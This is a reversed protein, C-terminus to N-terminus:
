LHKNLKLREQYGNEYIFEKQKRDFTANGKHLLRHHNPCVIVINTSHHNLSQSFYEIHHAEVVEVGHTQSFYTECIQCSNNYISKLENITRRNARRLKVLAQRIEISANGDLSNILALLEEETEVNEISSEPIQTTLQTLLNREENTLILSESVLEKYDKILTKIVHWYQSPDDGGYNFWDCIDIYDQKILQGKEEYINIAMQIMGAEFISTYTIYPNDIMKQIMRMRSNLITASFKEYKNKGPIRFVYRSFEGDNNIQTRRPDPIRPNNTINGNNEVYYKQEYTEKILDFIFDDVDNLVRNKGDNQRLILRHKDSFVDDITLNIIEELVGEDVTRGRVGLFPLWLLLQDQKNYLKDSYKKLTEKLPHKNLMAQRQVFNEVDIYKAKNEIHSVIRKDICFDIYTKLISKNKYVSRKSSNRFTAFMEYLDNISLNYVSKGVLNEYDDIIRLVFAVSKATPPPKNSLYEQKLENDIKFEM